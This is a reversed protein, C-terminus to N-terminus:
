RPTSSTRPPRARTRTRSASARAAVVPSAHDAAERGLAAIDIDAARMPEGGLAAEVDLMAQLWAADSVAAAVDGRAYMAASCSLRRLLRDRGPGQIRIDFRYGDDEREAMLTERRDAPVGALVPDDPDAALYIARRSTACCGARSSTCAVRVARAAGDVSWRGDDDTPCRAFAPPDPQWTEVLADPVPTAPATSCAGRRHPRRGADAVPGDAWPLGISLYPGVTQSPTPERSM